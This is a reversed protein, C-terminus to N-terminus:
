GLGMGMGSRLDEDEGEGGGEGDGEGQGEGWCKVGGGVRSESRQWRTLSVRKKCAGVAGIPLHHGDSTEGRGDLHSWGM